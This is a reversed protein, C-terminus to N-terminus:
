RCPTVFAVDGAISKATHDTTRWRNAIQPMGPIRVPSSVRSGTPSRFAGRDVNIRRAM